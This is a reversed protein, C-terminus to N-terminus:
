GSGEPDPKSLSPWGDDGYVLTNWGLLAHKDQLDGNRDMYHYYFIDSGDPATLVGPGGPAFVNGHSALFTTGGGQLLDTGNKDVFPGTLTESRGIRIQYVDAPPITNVVKALGCCAGHAYYVYYYPAHYALASGEIPHAGLHFSGNKIATAGNYVIHSNSFPPTPDKLSRLDSSLPLQFIGDWYSGYQLIPTGSKPDILVSADIANTVNFPYQDSNPGEGTYIIAGYDIWTDPADLNVSAAVGITSKRTSPITTAYFVYYTGNKEVVAPAWPKKFQENAEHTKSGNPLVQGVMNWPGNMSSGHSKYYPVGPGIDAGGFAYFHGNSYIAAPDHVLLNSAPPTTQVRTIVVVIATVFVILLATLFIGDRNLWRRSGKKPPPDKGNIPGPELEHKKSLSRLSSPLSLNSM